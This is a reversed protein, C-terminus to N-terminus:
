FETQFTYVVAILLVLIMVMDELRKFFAKQLTYRAIMKAVM